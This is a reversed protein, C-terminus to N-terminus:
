FGMRSGPNKFRLNEHRSQRRPACARSTVGLSARFTRLTSQLLSFPRGSPPTLVKTYVAKTKQKQTKKRELLVVRRRLQPFTPIERKRRSEWPATSLRSNAKWLEAM